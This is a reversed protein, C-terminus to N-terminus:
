LDVLKATLMSELVTKLAGQDVASVVESAFAHILMARADSESIGRSRLYFMGTEDLQGVTAGHTCKVDDAWIKLQPKANSTARDSLLLSQNSQIANTKQADPRVIITGDFTGKASDSYVGKVLEFSECHPVAHDLVTHNDVQQSGSLVALGVIESRANQGSITSYIENRTTNGGFTFVGTQVTSDADQEIGFANFVSAKASHQNIQIYSLRANRAVMGEVVTFSSYDDQTESVAVEIIHASASQAIDVFVRPFIMQSKAAESICSFIVIPKTLAVGAPVRLVVGATNGALNLGAFVSEALKPSTGIKELLSADAAAFPIVELEEPISQASNKNQFFGNLLVLAYCDGLETLYSERLSELPAQATDSAIGTTGTVFRKGDTYKWTELHRGPIGSKEVYQLAALQRELLVSGSMADLQSRISELPEIGM